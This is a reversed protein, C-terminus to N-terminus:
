QNVLITSDSLMPLHQDFYQNLIQRFLNVPSMTQYLQTYNSDPFYIAMLNPFRFANLEKPLRRFGHDGMLILITNKKNHRFIYTVLDDIVLNAYRIQTTYTKMPDSDLFEKHLNGHNDYLHPEHTILFHGYVFRPQRSPSHDNALKILGILEQNAWAMSKADQELNKWRGFFDNKRSSFNWGIDLSISGPLTQRYLQGRPLYDFYHGLGEEQISNRFPALFQLSYNEKNLICFLQNNSMSKNSQLVNRGVTADKGKEPDLYDMNFMSSISYPTFDYNARAHNVIYFGNRKLWDTITDNQFQWIKKLAENNTYEDFVLFFIDPKSSDPLHTAQYNECTTKSPYILNHSAKVEFWDYASIAVEVLLLCIMVTNLFLINKVSISRTRLLKRIFFFILLLCFPLFIKYSSIISLIFANKVLGHIPRFFLVFGSVVFIILSSLSSSKTWSQILFYSGLVLSYIIAGSILIEGPSIFGFLENYNHLIFFAPLLLLFIFPSFVFKKM